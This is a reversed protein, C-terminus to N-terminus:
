LVSKFDKHNVVSGIYSIHIQFQMIGCQRSLVATLLHSHLGELPNSGRRRQYRNLQVGGM